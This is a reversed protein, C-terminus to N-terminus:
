AVAPWFAAPTFHVRAHRTCRSPASCQAPTHTDTVVELVPTRSKVAPTQTVVFGSADKKGRGKAKLGVIVGAPDLYRLDDLDGNIVPRGGFTDPLYKQFVVAVNVGAAIVREMDPGNSESRSFVLTYNAPMVGTAYDLARGPNKTYDYFQYESFVEMVKRGSNLKFHEWALDSTGNLRFDAILHKGGARRIHTRMETELILKFLFPNSRLFVTRAIRARQVDNTSEGRKVIGGHGATNLCAAKCGASAYACVNQGSLDAPALHLIATSHGRARGKKTKPNYGDPTLMTRFGVMDYVWSPITLRKGSAIEGALDQFQTLTATAM